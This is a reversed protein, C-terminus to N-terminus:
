VKAVPAASFCRRRELEAGSRGFAVFEGDTTECFYASVQGFFRGREAANISPLFMTLVRPDYYRFYLTKRDPGKVLLFSRFHKRMARMGGSGRAFIGWHRGFCGDLFWESFPGDPLLEVLYPAVEQVAPELEGAYLCVSQPRHERLKGLLEGCSAGDVVAYTAEGDYAFLTKRLEETTDAM